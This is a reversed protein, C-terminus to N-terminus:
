AQGSLRQGHGRARRQREPRELYVPLVAVLTKGEGTKMEAIKGNHLVMGGILQVDFPRMRLVRLSAERAVAFAEPLLEELSEGQALREKFAPTKAQLEADSLDRIEPELSNIQDVLPALRRLERDNASGFIKKLIYAFMIIKVPASRM